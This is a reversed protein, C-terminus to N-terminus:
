IQIDISIPVHDSYKLYKGIDGIKLDSYKIDDHAFIYDIHFGKNEKKHLYFTPITECGEKENREKHYISKIGISFLMKSFYSHNRKGRKDWIANSNFDGIIFAKGLKEKYENFYVCADEIYNDCAWVAIFNTENIKLSIYCDLDFKGWLNESYDIKNKIFVGLGRSRNWHPVWKYKYGKLWNKFEQDKITQPNRVEQIVYIDASELEKFKNQFGDNCNWSVIKM